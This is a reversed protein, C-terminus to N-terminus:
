NGSKGLVAVHVHQLGSFGLANAAGKSLDIIRGKVFPGRDVITVVVSRGNRPNKVRVKTGFALTRHAAVMAGSSYSRGSATVSLDSYHSAVGSQATATAWPLLTAAAAITGAILAQMIVGENSRRPEKAHEVRDLFAGKM